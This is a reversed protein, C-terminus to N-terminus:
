GRRHFMDGSQGKGRCKELLKERAIDRVQEKDEMDNLPLLLRSIAEQGIRYLM